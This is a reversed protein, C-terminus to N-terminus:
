RPSLLEHTEHTKSFMKMPLSYEPGDATTMNRTGPTELGMMEGCLQGRCIALIRRPPSTQKPDAEAHIALTGALLFKM